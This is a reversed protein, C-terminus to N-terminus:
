QDEPKVAAVRISEITKSVAEAEESSMNLSDLISRVSPDNVLSGLSFSSADIIQIDKFGSASIAEIYEKKLVAGGICGVYAEVSSRIIEPLEETLVIDAV